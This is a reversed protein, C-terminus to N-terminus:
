CCHSCCLFDSLVSGERLALEAIRISGHKCAEDLAADAATGEPTAVWIPEAPGFPDNWLPWYHLFFAPLDYRCVFRHVRIDGGVLAERADNTCRFKAAHSSNAHFTEWRSRLNETAWQYRCPNSSAAPIAIPSSCRDGFWRRALEQQLAESQLLLHFSPHVYALQLVLGVSHERALIIQELVSLPLDMLTITM